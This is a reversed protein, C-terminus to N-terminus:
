RFPRCINKLSETGKLRLSPRGRMSELALALPNHFLDKNALLNASFNLGDLLIYSEPLSLSYSLCSSSAESM